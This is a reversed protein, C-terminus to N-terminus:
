RACGKINHTSLLILFLPFAKGLLSFFKPSLVLLYISVIVNHLFGGKFIPHSKQPIHGSDVPSWGIKISLVVGLLCQPVKADEKKSLNYNQGVDLGCKRKIQCIYLSSVKSGNKKLVYAKIEDYTAKSEAATLNLEDM